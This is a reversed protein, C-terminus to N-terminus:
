FGAPFASELWREMAEATQPALELFTRRADRPDPRSIIVGRELLRRVWRLATTQPVCSAYCADSMCVRKGEAASAYLDLILDWVPDSFLGSVFLSARRRRAALCWRALRGFDAPSAITEGVRGSVVTLEPVNPALTLPQGTPMPQRRAFVESARAVRDAANAHARGERPPPATM